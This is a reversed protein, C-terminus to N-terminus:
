LSILVELAGRIDNILRNSIRIHIKIKKVTICNDIMQVCTRFIKYRDSAFHTLLSRQFVLLNTTKLLNEMSSSILWQAPGNQAWPDYNSCVQYHDM